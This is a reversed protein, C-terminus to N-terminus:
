YIFEVRKSKELILGAIEAARRIQLEWGNPHTLIFEINKEMSKWLSDGSAHSETIYNRACTFFYRMFEGLVQVASKDKPLPPIDEDKIRRHWASQGYTFNGGLLM